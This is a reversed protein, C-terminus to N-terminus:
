AAKQRWILFQSKCSYCHPFRTIQLSDNGSSYHSLHFKVRIYKKFPKILWSAVLMAKIHEFKPNVYALPLNEESYNGRTLTVQWTPEEWYAATVPSPKTPGIRWQCWSGHSNLVRDKKQWRFGQSPTERQRATTTLHFASTYLGTVWQLEPSLVGDPVRRIYLHM